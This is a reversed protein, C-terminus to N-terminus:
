GNGGYEDRKEGLDSLSEKTPSPMQGSVEGAVDVLLNSREWLGDILTRLETKHADDLGNLKEEAHHMRFIICQLINCFVRENTAYVQLTFKAVNQAAEVLEDLRGLLVYTFL